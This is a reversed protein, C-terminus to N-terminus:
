KARIVRINKEINGFNISVIYVGSELSSMDLMDDQTNWKQNIILQGALSYVKVNTITEESRFQLKDVVPNPFYSFTLKHLDEVSLTITATVALVNNSECGNLTQTAYYTTESVLLTTPDLPNIGAIADAETSYWVINEGEAQLDAITMDEETFLQVTEGLPATTTNVMVQIERRLSECGNFTQTAYYTGTIMVTSESLTTDATLSSYFKLETGLVTASLNAITAGDCFTQNSAGPMPTSTLTVVVHTRASECGDITQSVYYDGAVLVTEPLYVTGGSLSSYWKINTGTATLDSIMSGTCILTNEVVPSPTVNVTVEIETRASEISNVTQTVYYYGSALATADTLQTGGTAVDYWKLDAGEADLDNVTGSNCFVHDIATPAPPVPIVNITVAVEIRTSECGNITQSVYYSGSILLTINILQTGGNSTAYWKLDTGTATLDSVTAGNEFTLPAATPAPTVNVTVAVQTRPSECGNLTQSVFYSTTALADTAALQTGGNSTAYWKLNTGTATLNAVTASNCFTLATATPAPTVNVTVAVQTRPSECNNLTQSVFYNTTTLADTTALQTGGTAAAYWKLDTGTATLNAVTASNCFTLTTATPAPSVNVTVAVQTRPSECNNLTQSVFYNTTALADTTALQTGGTAAAYWKLDTGTATLNAVTASNCFTLATATPAPTVNVTVAVQTRASECANLTQSVFYNTTALADTTALQTGGTAAAYWKLNTGTATLNAVTAANCFTFTTATPAPTVNVNVAVQTRASECANLTQSVFYSTTALADTTVLQTGGTAAAYWKLDTGTATLNAVTASNCFTLATATPAPTVNVTVAVQTRASECGNLTQSVFYSMTALTDTTALQTEGTPAAYWKLDTGTATLNAVTASNCFTLATTTPASTTNIVIDSGNDNISTTLVLGTSLQVVRVKYNGATLFSPLTATIPSATSASSIINSFDTPFVGMPDSQQVYYSGATFTGQTTYAVSINNAAGSCYPGFTTATTNIAPAIEVLASLPIQVTGNGGSITLTGNYTGIAQDAAFRVFIQPSTQNVTGGTFAFSGTTGYAGIGMALEFGASTTLTINGSVPVLNIATISNLQTAASPGQGQIATFSISAPTATIQPTPLVTLTKGLSVANYMADGTNSATITTTGVGVITIIGDQAITAVNTDSSSYTIALPASNTVTVVFPVDNAFKNPIPDPTFTLFQNEKNITFVLVKNNTGYYGSARLNINYVGAPTTGDFTILGNADITAGTPLNTASLAIVPTGSATIQYVESEGVFTSAALTSTIQPATTVPIQVVSGSFSFDNISFTGGTSSAGYAYVRFTVASTINQYSAGTLSISSGSVSATGINATYNDLSSRVFATTPGSGSAQAGYTFDTFNIKYGSAPTITFYFYDNTDLVSNWQNANYRNGAATGVIGPGRGVGSVNIYTDAPITQGLTFPDYANPATDNIGNSWLTGATFVTNIPPTIIMWGNTLTVAYNDAAGGTLTTPYAGVPSTTIATTVISPAIFGAATATTQGGAFGTYTITLAPNASGQIKTKNDATATLIKKTIEGSLGTSPQTLTYNTASTGTLGLTVAIGTGANASAYTGSLNVTDGSIVGSLIAGTIVAGSTAADYTKPAVTASTVDVTLALPTISAQYTQATLSYNAADAGQLTFTATVNKNNGVTANAFTGAVTTSTLSVDDGAIIGGAVIQANNVVAATTKDYVKDLAAATFSLSKRTIMASLGVPQQLTYNAADAGSLSCTSTVLIGITSVDASVFTGAGNLTVTDGTVIGTLTGTIVADTNGNYVKSLAVAGTITLQKQTIIGTLATPQTLTYNAAASGTLTLNNVIIGTGPTDQTFTGTTATVNTEDGTVVGTLTTNTLAAATTGDYTKTTVLTNTTDVTLTKQTVAATLGIPQTLTYNAAQTGTLSLNATVPKNTGVNFNNFTGNGTVTVDDGSLLGNIQSVTIVADTTRDYVKDGATANVTLSLSTINATLGTPQTLTYNSADAGSLTSTSTVAIATAVNADAFTGTGNLTVTDGTLIGSLTGTIVAATTGDYAKNAAGPTTLTLAAPVINGTVTPQTLTYKAIDNGTISYQSTVTIATGADSSTFTAASILTVDDSNIIGSLTGSAVATTNQDYTKDAVAANTVTLTKPNVTLQQQVAPAPNYTSDGSQNATITVTGVNLITVTNGAVTAVSTDSSSYTVTLGSDATANLSFAADGYTANSLSGFTIAQNQLTVSTINAALGQPQQLTYNAIGTGTLVYGSAIVPIAAGINPDSFVATAASADLAVDDPSIVGNLVATGTITASTNGDYTKNNVQVGSITLQKATIDASIGTPQTLVYRNAQAGTLQYVVTVPKNTGALANNFTATYIGLSVDDSGVIESATVAAGSITATTNQDYTKDDANVGTTTIAKPDVTLTRIVDTAANYNANGAQSATINITGPAVITVTSGSITAVATDSSVYTIAEGSAGGTATLTFDPAGYTKTMNSFSIAQNLKNVTLTCSVDTAANYNANGAQSATITCAGAGVITVTSGSITAVTTDSSVYTIAEGSAGGTATLTFDADGYNKTINSFSITQNLKNVTLTRIVDTAANYNANGAQSATITCVGAGIITVTNGSITAVSPDSSIYTIAEGSAGGTAALTFDADSYNKTINSFNITQNAKNVTLTVDKDLAGAINSANIRIDYTGAAATNSVIVSNTGATIGAPLAGSPNLTTTITPTPNGAVTYNYTGGTGYTFTQSSGGTPFTPAVNAAPVTWNVTVDDISLGHDSGSDDVDHWKLMIYSNNPLSLGTLSVNTATVRNAAVNGVLPGATGGTIPSNKTLGAVQTWGTGTGTVDNENLASTSTLYYFTLPQAAAGGNRWQEMTYTVTIDTITAGSTNRLVVGYALVTASGSGLSGLARDASNGYNYLAGANASGANNSLSTKNAYWNALTSNQTWTTTGSTSNPFSNFDQSYSGTTSMTVQGWLHPTIALFIILLVKLIKQHLLKVM